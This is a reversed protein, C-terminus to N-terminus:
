KEKRLLCISTTSLEVKKWSKDERLWVEIARKVGGKMRDFDNGEFTADDLLINDTLIASLM